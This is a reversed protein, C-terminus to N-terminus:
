YIEASRDGAGGAILLRGDQLLTATHGFRERVMAIVPGFTSTAPDFWEATITDSGGALLVRGDPLLTAAHYVRAYSMPVAAGFTGTGPSFLQADDYVRPYEMAFLKEGGAILVRGDPLVTTTHCDRAIGLAGTLTFTGAAPNFIEASDLSFWGDFSGGALLVKGDSLLSATHWLRQSKMQAAPLFSNTAPNYIETSALVTCDSSAYGGAMLVSGDPLLTATHFGRTANMNGAPTFNGTAPDYLEASGLWVCGAREQGGALLVKGDGMLTATHYARPVSMSGTPRFQNTAPNFIEASALPVERCAPDCVEMSGGAILVEGNALLTATHYRRPAGMEGTPVFGTDVVIAAATATKSSDWMSTAVLQYTGLTAPATYVGETSISGGVAGQLVSWNVGTQVSGTVTARFAQTRGPLLAASSPRVSIAVANVTVIAMAQKTTDANSTAVVGVMGPTAPATFLGTSSITGGVSSAALSWTVSPDTAGVVTATFQQTAGQDTILGAPSVIVILKAPELTVEGRGGGACGALGALVTLGLVM